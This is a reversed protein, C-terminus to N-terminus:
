YFEKAPLENKINALYENIKKVAYDNPIDKGNTINLEKFMEKIQEKAYVKNLQKWNESTIKEVKSSEENSQKDMASKVEEYSAISNSGLFGCFGLARGIASTECNMIMSTKNIYSASEREEATGSALLVREGNIYAYVNCTFEVVRNGLEGELRNEFTEISGTPFVKRFAKVRQPVEAYDKSTINGNKDKREIALLEMESNAKEILESIAKEDFTTM